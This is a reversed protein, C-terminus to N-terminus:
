LNLVPQKATVVFCDTFGEVKLMVVLGDDKNVCHYEDGLLLVMVGVDTKAIIVAGNGIARM